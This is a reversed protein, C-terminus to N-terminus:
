AGEDRPPLVQREHPRQRGRRPHQSCRKGQAAERLALPVFGLRQKLGERYRDTTVMRFLWWPASLLLGVVLLSSYVLMIM